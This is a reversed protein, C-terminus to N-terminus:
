TSLPKRRRNKMTLGSSFARFAQVLQCLLADMPSNFELPTGSKIVLEGKTIANDKKHGCKYQGDDITFVDFFDEIWNPVNTCNSRLYRVAHYLLVYFHAELDDAIEVVKSPNNLLAVSM